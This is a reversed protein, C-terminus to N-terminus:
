RGSVSGGSFDEANLGFLIHDERQGNIQLYRKAHGEEAFGWKLILSKSRMNRPMCAANMRQLLLKEFAFRLTELGAQYMLGRGQYDQDIWYGLSAFQAAGRTVNNINMGGIISDDDKHLILFSYATDQQWDKSLRVARRMFFEPSLADSPWAPEYPKLYFQNKARVALWEDCDSVICPRLYVDAAVLIADDVSNLPSKRRSWLM